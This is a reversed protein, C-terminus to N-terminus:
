DLAYDKKETQAIPHRKVELFRLLKGINFKDWHV